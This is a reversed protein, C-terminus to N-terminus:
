IGTRAEDLYFPFVMNFRSNTGRLTYALRIHLLGATSRSEDVELHDLDVRPEHDRIANSILRTISTELSRDIEEFLFTDLACGFTEQLVREGPQTSLLIRLSQHVDEAGAVTAVDGGHVTFDPPFAWGRGLFPAGELAPAGLASSERSM